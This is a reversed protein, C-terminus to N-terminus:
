IFNLNLLGAGSTGVRVLKSVSPLIWVLIKGASKQSDLNMTKPTTPRQTKSMAKLVYMKALASACPLTSLAMHMKFAFDNKQCV